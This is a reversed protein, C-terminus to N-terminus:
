VTACAPVEAIWAALLEGDEVGDHYATSHVNAYRQSDSNDGEFGKDIGLIYDAPMGVENALALLRNNTTEKTSNTLVATEEAIGEFWKVTGDHGLRELLFLGAACATTSAGPYPVLMSHGLRVGSADEIREAREVTMREYDM